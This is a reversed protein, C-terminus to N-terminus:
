MTEREGLSTTSPRLSGYSVSGELDSRRGESSTYDLAFVKRLTQIINYMNREKKKKYYKYEGIKLLVCYRGIETRKRREKKGVYHLTTDHVQFINHLWPLM